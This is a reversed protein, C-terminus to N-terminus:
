RTRRKSQLRTVPKKNKKLGKKLYQRWTVAIREPENISPSPVKHVVSNYPANKVFAPNEYAEKSVQRLVAVYEDIDDKSYSECPELTFPEPVIWPHHSMWYHQLGFDAMRRMVDETGVGTDQRLKEWSYRVQELRRKGTAYRITVGPVESLKKMMYNNNLVSCVAVERLGAEGHQMIWSYAKVLSQVNGMFSRVKGVSDPRDYDLYYRDGDLRVLPIPLFKALEETCGLAGVSGGMSQHSVSFTKHLNFHCLDFGADRARTIGLMGNANAQDYYCVAGAEHALRVFEDIRPNYIGTDEPNTIFIAATRESLASEFARLDAYGDRDPMITVVKFGATAPGAADSPHSFMTTIVETRKEKEGRSAHYARIMSAATYEAQAGGAPQFSFRDMGSIEKLFQELRYVIELLGQITEAPQLPHIERIGPHRAAIHEQVKPSYKMTCTGQSIDITVDTGMTEQSLHMFHRLVRMQSIEPLAPLTKRRLRSPIVSIGSGVARQVEDGPQEVLIGREGPVSMEFVIQEDWKAEHFKRLLTQPDRGM